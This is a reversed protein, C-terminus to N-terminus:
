ECPGSAPECAFTQAASPSRRDYRRTPGVSKRVVLRASEARARITARAPVAAASSWGFGGAGESAAATLRSTESFIPLACTQVGTVTLDRIGDEAQFFFCVGICM